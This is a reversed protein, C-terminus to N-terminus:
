EGRIFLFYILVFVIATAGFVFVMLTDSQLSAEASPSKELTYAVLWIFGFVSFISVLLMRWRLVFAIIALVATCGIVYPNQLMAQLDVTQLYAVVKGTEFQKLFEIVATFDM